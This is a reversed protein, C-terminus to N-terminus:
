LSLNVKAALYQRLRARVDNTQAPCLVREGLDADLQFSTYQGWTFKTWASLDLNRLELIKWAGSGIAALLAAATTTGTGGVQVGNVWATWASGVGACASGSTAEGSQLKAIFNTADATDESAVVMDAGDFSRVAMFLDMNAGLTGASFTNTASGDDIGDHLDFSVGSEVTYAARASSTAQLCHNGPIPKVSVNDFETYSGAPTSLGVLSVYTTTGTAVFYTEQAGLGPFNQSRIDSTGAGTGIALRATIASPNAMLAASVRYLTGVVTTLAQHAYSNLAGGTGNTVRLSGSVVSLTASNGGTWGTTTGGSFDGNTVLESEPQAGLRKDLRMGVPQGGTTVPTGATTQFGTTLDAPALWLGKAGGAFISEPSFSSGSGGARLRTRLRNL